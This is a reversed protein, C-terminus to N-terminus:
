TYILRNINISTYHSQPHRPTHTQTHFHICIRSHTLADIFAYGCMYVIKSPKEVLFRGILLWRSSCTRAASWKDGQQWQYQADRQAPQCTSTKAGGKSQSGWWTAKGSSQKCRNLWHLCKFQFLKASQVEPTTCESFNWAGFLHEYTRWRPTQTCPQFSSCQYELWNETRYIDYYSNILILQFRVFFNFYIVLVFIFM